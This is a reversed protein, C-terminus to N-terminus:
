RRATSSSRRTSSPPTRASARRGTAPEARRRFARRHTQDDDPTSCGASRRAARRARPFYSGSVLMGAGNMTQGSTRSTPASVATRPSGPSSRGAGERSRPVDPLQLRRRLRGPQQVLQSGPKPGPRPLTSWRRPRSSRCRAAAADPQVALLDRCQRRHRARALRDRRRHRVPHPVAHPPRPSPEHSIQRIACSKTQRPAGPLREDRRASHSGHHGIRFRSGESRRVPRCPRRM